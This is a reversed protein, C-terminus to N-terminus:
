STVLAPKSQLPHPKQDDKLLKVMRKVNLVLFTMLCQIAVRWKGRYRARRLGHWKKAEGFKREVRKRLEMAESYFEDDDELKLRYDDSIYIRSRNGKFAQCKCRCGKCIEVAFNYFKGRGQPNKVEKSRVGQPCILTDSRPDYVFGKAQKNSRRLAIYAKMGRGHIDERNSASDYLADAVVAEAKIGKAEEKEILCRLQSGENQNGQLLDVSTVIESEDLAIHAKYGSFMRRPSKVGHRCDTDIFSCIKAKGRDQEYLGEPWEM